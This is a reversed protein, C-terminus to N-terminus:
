NSFVFFSKIFFFAFIHYIYKTCVVESASEGNTEQGQEDEDEDRESETEKGQSAANYDIEPKAEPTQFMDKGDQDDAAKEANEDM